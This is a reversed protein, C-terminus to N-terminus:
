SCSLSYETPTYQGPQGTGAMRLNLMNWIQVGSTGGPKM